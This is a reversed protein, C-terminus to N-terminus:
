DNFNSVFIHSPRVQAALPTKTSQEINIEAKRQMSMEQQNM